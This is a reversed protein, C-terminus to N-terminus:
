CAIMVTCHGTRLPSLLIHSLFFPNRIIFADQVARLLFDSTSLIYGCFQPLQFGIIGARQPLFVVGGIFRPQQRFVQFPPYKGLVPNIMQQLSRLKM